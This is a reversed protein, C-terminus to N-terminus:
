DLADFIAGTLGGITGGGIISGLWWYDGFMDPCFFGWIGCLIVMVVYRM